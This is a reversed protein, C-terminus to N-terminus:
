NGDKPDKYTITHEKYFGHRPKQFITGVLGITGALLHVTAAGADDIFTLDDFDEGKALWGGGWGWAVVIPYVWGTVIIAIFLYAQYNARESIFGNIAFICAIGYLGDLVCKMFMGGSLSNIDFDDGGFNESGIFEEVDGFAFGLGLLWWITIGICMGTVSKVLTYRGHKPRNIAVEIIVLSTLAVMVMM